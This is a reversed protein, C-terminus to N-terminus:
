VRPKGLILNKRDEFKVAHGKQCWCSWVLMGQRLKHVNVQATGNQQFWNYQITTTSSVLIPKRRAITEEALGEELGLVDFHKPIVLIMDEVDVTATSIM